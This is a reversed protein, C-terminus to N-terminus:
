AGTAVPALHHGFARVEGIPRISAAQEGALLTKTLFFFSLERTKRPVEEFKCELHNSPLSLQVEFIARKHEGWM